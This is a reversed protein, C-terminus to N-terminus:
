ILCIAQRRTSVTTDIPDNTRVHPCFNSLAVRWKVEKKQWWFAMVRALCLYLVQKNIRAFVLENTCMFTILLFLRNCCVNKKLSIKYWQCLFM